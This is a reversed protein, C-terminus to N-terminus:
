VRRKEGDNITEIENRIVYWLGAYMRLVGNNENTSEFVLFKSGNIEKIYGDVENIIM